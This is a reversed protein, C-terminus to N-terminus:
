VHFGVCSQTVLAFVPIGHIQEGESGCCPWSSSCLLALNELVKFQGCFGVISWLVVVCAFIRIEGTLSRKIM